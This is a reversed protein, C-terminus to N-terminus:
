DVIVNSHQRTAMKTGALLPFRRLAACKLSEEVVDPALISGTGSSKGAKAWQQTARRQIHMPM